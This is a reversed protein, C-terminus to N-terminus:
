NLHTCLPYIICAHEPSSKIDFISEPTIYKNCPGHLHFQCFNSVNFVSISKNLYLITCIYVPVYTQKVELFIHHFIYLLPHLIIMFYLFLNDEFM